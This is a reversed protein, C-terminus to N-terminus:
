LRRVSTRNRMEREVADVLERSQQPSPGFTSYINVVHTQPARSERSRSQEGALSMRERDASLSGGSSRAGGGKKGGGKKGGGGKGAMGAAIGLEVAAGAMAIAGPLNQPGAGTIPDPPALAKAFLVAAQAATSVSQMALRVGENAILSDAIGMAADAGALAAQLEAEKAAVRQEGAKEAADGMKKQHAVFAAQDREWQAREEDSLSNMRQVFLQRRDEREQLAQEEAGRAEELTAFDGGFEGEFGSPGADKARGGGGKKKRDPVTSGPAGKYGAYNRKGRNGVPSQAGTSGPDGAM